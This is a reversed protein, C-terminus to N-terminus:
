PKAPGTDNRVAYGNDPTGASKGGTRCGDRSGPKGTGDSERVRQLIECEQQHGSRLLPLLPIRPATGRLEQLVGPKGLDPYQMEPVKALPGVIERLEQLVGPDRHHTRQLPPLHPRDDPRRLERLVAHDVTRRGRM